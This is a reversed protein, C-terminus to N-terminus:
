FDMFRQRYVKDLQKVKAKIIDEKGSSIIFEEDPRVKGIEAFVHGKMMKEFESKNKPDITVIFRSQTESYFITELSLNDNPIKKADIVSGLQGSIVMKALMILLGGQSVSACASLLGKKNLEYITEYLRRASVADVKPAKAGLEGHMNYFESGGCEDRTKGVIYILDGPVKFDMTTTNHIDEIVGMTSILLTPYVSIKIPKDSEDFGKFDNFMSDKGSIFPTKYVTAHDFCGRAADKLQTLRKPDNSSCWCFNDLLAMHNINGGVAVSNRLSTDIACAAMDYCSIESMRPLLVQSIVAGRNSDLVPRVVVATGNVRGKGQLPKIVSNNQVEHDYQKSIFEFSCINHSGLLKEFTKMHDKVKIEPEKKNYPYTKTALKRDPLGHHLFHMDLNFIEKGKFNVIGRGTGNFKGIVTSEVGRADMLEGFEQLKTDPVSLTMREQSESIWTEWPQLGPYKLPVKDLDVVFGGCEEAMEAVSCSLGGAGNDTNSTYLSRDRAEKILADSLKKQTIPDGIQVATAPSGEDMEESSFTAGHIGDKGVRGGIVVINDGPLAKKQEGKRGDPLKRPILGVTGVFVLPKGKYHDDIFLFGPPTPIGSTNGGANVGHIVGDWVRKPFLSPYAKNKGRYITERDEPRGFCYGYKNVIPLAGLGFGITDRNVGVIGTIAGGFPDLASPSNHTETKDTIM